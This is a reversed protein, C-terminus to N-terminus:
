GVPLLLEISIIVSKPPTQIQITLLILLTHVNKKLCNSLEDARLKEQLNEESRYMCYISVIFFFWFMKQEIVMIINM